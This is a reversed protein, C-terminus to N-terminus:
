FPKVKFTTLRRHFFCKPLPSVCRLAEVTLSQLLLCKKLLDVIPFEVLGRIEMIILNRVDIADLMNSGLWRSDIHLERLRPCCIFLKVNDLVVRDSPWEITLSELLPLPSAGATTDKPHTLGSTLMTELQLMGFQSFYLLKLSKWRAGQTALEKVIGGGPMLELQGHGYGHFSQLSVRLPTSGSLPIACKRFFDEGAVVRDTWVSGITVSM